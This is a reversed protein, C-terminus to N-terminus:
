PRVRGKQGQVTGAAAGAAAGEGAGRLGLIPSAARRLPWGAVWGSRRGPLRGQDNAEMAETAAMGARGQFGDVM